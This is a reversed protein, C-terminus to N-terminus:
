FSVYQAIYLQAFKIPQAHSACGPRRKGWTEFNHFIGARIALVLLDDVEVRRTLDLTDFLERVVHNCFDLFPWALPRQLRPASGLWLADAAAAPYASGDEVAITPLLFQTFLLAGHCPLVAYFVVWCPNMQM